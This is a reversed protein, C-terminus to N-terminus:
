WCNKVQEISLNRLSTVSNNELVNLCTLLCPQYVIGHVGPPCKTEKDPAPVSSSALGRLLSATLASSTCTAEAAGETRPEWQGQRAQM